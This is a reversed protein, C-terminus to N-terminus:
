SARRVPYISHTGALGEPPWVTDREFIELCGLLGYRISKITKLGAGELWWREEGRPFLEYYVDRCHAGREEERINARLGSCNTTHGSALCKNLM